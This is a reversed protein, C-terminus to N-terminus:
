KELGMNRLLAAYRADAHLGEFLQMGNLYTLGSDRMEYARELWEFAKDEELGVYAEAIIFPSVYESRSRELLEDVIKMADKRRGSMAYSYALIGNLWFASPSLAKAKQIEVLAEDFMSKLAYVMGLYYHALHFNSDTELVLRLQNIAEDYRREHYYALGIHVQIMPSLPDIEQAKKIQAMAEDQRDVVNLYLSYWHHATAYNPKLEIARKLERESGVWDWEHFMLGGLTAHAEAISDDLGLAKSVLRKAKPFAESAPLSGQDGFVLYCDALGVYALAYDPDVEIAKELFRVARDLSEKTRENWHHRGRLYL